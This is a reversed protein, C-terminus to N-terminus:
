NEPQTSFPQRKTQAGAAVPPAAHPTFNIEKEDFQKGHEACWHHGLFDSETAPNSCRRGRANLSGFQCQLRPVPFPPNM